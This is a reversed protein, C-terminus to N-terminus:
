RKTMSADPNWMHYNDAPPLKSFADLERRSIYKSYLDRVEDAKGAYAAEVIGESLDTMEKYDNKNNRWYTTLYKFKKDNALVTKTDGAEVADKLKLIVPAWTQLAKIKEGQNDAWVKSAGLVVASEVLM